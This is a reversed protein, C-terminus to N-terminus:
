SELIVGLYGSNTRGSPEIRVVNALSVSSYGGHKDLVPETMLASILRTYESTAWSNSCTAPSFLKSQLGFLSEWGLCNASRGFFTIWFFMEYLFFWKAYFFLQPSFNSIILFPSYFLFLYKLGWLVSIDYFFPWIFRPHELYFM